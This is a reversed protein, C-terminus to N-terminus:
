LFFYFKCTNRPIRSVYVRFMQIFIESRNVAVRENLNSYGKKKQLSQQV